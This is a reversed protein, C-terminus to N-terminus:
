AAMLRAARLCWPSRPLSFPFFPFHSVNELPEHTKKERVRNLNIGGGGNQMLGGNAAAAAAAAAAMKARNVETQTAQTRMSNRKLRELFFFSLFFIM